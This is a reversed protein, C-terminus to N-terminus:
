KPVDEKNDILTMGNYSDNNNNRLVLLAEIFGGPGEAVHFSKLPSESFTDLLNFTKCMEVMKFFSRSLPKYKSVSMKHKPIVSHIYEYPNVYKKVNDWETQYNDIKGKVHNLHYSLSKSIGAECSKIEHSLCINFNHPKLLTHNTNLKYYTM